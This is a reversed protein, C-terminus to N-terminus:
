IFQSPAAEGRDLIQHNRVTIGSQSLSAELEDRPLLFSCVVPLRNAERM